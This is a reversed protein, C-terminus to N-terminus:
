ADQKDETDSGTVYQIHTDAATDNANDDADSQGDTKDNSGDTETHPTGNNSGEPSNLQEVFELIRRIFKQGKTAPLQSPSYMQYLVFVIITILSGESGFREIINFLLEEM